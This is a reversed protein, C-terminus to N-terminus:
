LFVRKYANNKCYVNGNDKKVLAKLGVMNKRVTVHDTFCINNKIIQNIENETFEVDDQIISHLHNILMTQYKLQAPWQKIKGEDNFLSVFKDSKNM